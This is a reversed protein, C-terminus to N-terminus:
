PERRYAPGNLPKKWGSSKSGPIVAKKGSIGLHRNRVRGIKAKVAADAATKVRHAYRLVPRLNGERHEGGAALAIEHDCDWQDGPQITLGTEQCVGGFRDFVRRRVRPPIAEDDHKAVWEDVSRAM